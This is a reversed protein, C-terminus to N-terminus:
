LGNFNLLPEHSLDRKSIYKPKMFCNINLSKDSFLLGKECNQNYYNSHYYILSSNNQLTIFGHAFGEPILVSYNSDTNLEISFYKM